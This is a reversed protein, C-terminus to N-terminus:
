HSVRDSLYITGSFFVHPTTKQSAWTYRGQETIVDAGLLREGPYGAHSREGQTVTSVDSHMQSEVEM